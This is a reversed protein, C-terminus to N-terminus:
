ATRLAELVENIATGDIAQQSTYRLVRWGALAAANYKELDKAISSGRNHRGQIWTGGEIEVALNDLIWAFDFRWRRPPAFRYERTFHAIGKVICQQAFTEEGTSLVKM